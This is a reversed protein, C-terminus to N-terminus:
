LQRPSVQCFDKLHSSELEKWEQEAALSKLPVQCLVRGSQHVAMLTSFLLMM